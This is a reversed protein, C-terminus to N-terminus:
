VVRRPRQTQARQNELFASYYADAPMPKGYLWGQAYSVGQAILWDAQQSTEVGEAVMTLQLSQALAIISQLLRFDISDTGIAQVYRRDLKLFSFPLDSLYDLGAQGTGFDDIGIVCGLADLRALADRVQTRRSPDLASETMEVRLHTASLAPFFRRLRDAFDLSHDGLAHPSANLSIYCDGQQPVLRNLLECSQWAMIATLERIQGSAEAEAIFEVPSLVSQGDRRWRALAEAGLWRGTKLEVIPQFWAEFEQRALGLRIQHSVQELRHRRLLVWAVTLACSLLLISFVAWRELKIVSWLTAPPYILSVSLKADQSSRVQVLRSRPSLATEVLPDNRELVAEAAQRNLSSLAGEVLLPRTQDRHGIMVAEDAYRIRDFLQRLAASSLVAATAVGRADWRYILLGPREVVPIRRELSLHLGLGPQLADMPRADNVAGWSTCVLRYGADIRLFGEIGPLGYAERQMLQRRQPSCGQSNDLQLNILSGNVHDLLIDLDALVSLAKDRAEDAQHSRVTSLMLLCLLTVPVVMLILSVWWTWHDTLSDKWRLHLPM